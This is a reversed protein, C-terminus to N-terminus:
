SSRLRFRQCSLLLYFVNLSAKIIVSKVKFLDFVTHIHLTEYVQQSFAMTTEIASCPLLNSPTTHLDPCNVQSTATFNKAGSASSASFESKTPFRGMREQRLLLEWQPFPKLVTWLHLSHVNNPRAQNQLCHCWVPSSCAYNLDVITKSFSTSKSLKRSFGLLEILPGAQLFM